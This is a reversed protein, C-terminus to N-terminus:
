RLPYQKLWIPIAEVLELARLFFLKKRAQQATKVLVICYRGYSTVAVDWEEDEPPECICQRLASEIRVRTESDGIGDFEIHLGM